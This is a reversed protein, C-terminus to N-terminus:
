DMTAGHYVQLTLIFLARKNMLLGDLGSFLFVCNYKQEDM